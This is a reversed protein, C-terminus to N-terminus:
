NYNNPRNRSLKLQKKLWDWIDAPMRGKFHKIDIELFLYRDKENETYPKILNNITELSYKTCIVFSSEDFRYWPGVTKINEFIPEKNLGKYTFLYIKYM